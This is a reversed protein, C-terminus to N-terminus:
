RREPNRAHHIVPATITAGNEVEARAQALSAELERKDQMLAVIQQTKFQLMKMTGSEDDGVAAAMENAVQVRRESRVGLSTDSLVMTFQLLKLIIGNIWFHSATIEPDESHSPSPVRLEAELAAKQRLAVASDRRADRLQASLQVLEAQAEAGAEAEAQAEALARKLKIETETRARREGGEAEVEAVAGKLRSEALEEVETRLASATREALQRRSEAGTYLLCDFCSM